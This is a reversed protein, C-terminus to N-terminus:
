ADQQMLQPLVETLMAQLTIFLLAEVQERSARDRELWERAATDGLGLFCRLLFRLEPPADTAGTQNLIIRDVVRERIRDLIAELEPDSSFGRASIWLDRENEISDLLAALNRRAVETPPLGQAETNLADPIIQAGAEVVALYLDRKSGFYHHVLGRTVGAAEAIQGTSTPEYGRETFLRAAADLIQRRRQAPDLRSFRPKPKAAADM